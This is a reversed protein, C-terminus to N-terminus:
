SRHLCENADDIRAREGTCGLLQTDPLGGDRFRDRLKLIPEAYTQQHSRRMAERQCFRAPAEVFTGLSCDFLSFLRFENRAPCSRGQRAPQTNECGYRKRAKVQHRMQWREKCLMRRQLDVDHQLIAINVEDTRSYVNRQSHSRQTVQRRDPSLYASTPATNHPSGCIEGCVSHWLGWGFQTRVLSDNVLLPETARCPVEPFCICLTRRRHRPPDM